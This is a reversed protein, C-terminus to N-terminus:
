PKSVYQNRKKLLKEIPKITTYAFYAEMLKNKFGLLKLGEKVKPTHMLNQFIRQTYGIQRLQSNIWALYKENIIERLIDVDLLEIEHNLLAYYNLSNQYTFTHKEEEFLVNKKRFYDRQWARDLRRDDPLNLMSLAINEDLFPSYGNYGYHEPISILSQLLMMKTRMAAIIRYKPDVLLDKQKDFAQEVLPRYDIATATQSDATMRHTHGLVKYDQIDKIPQVQVAGAWADGIIGSLMQMELAKEQQRIKDFFEMHYTGVAGVSCGFQGFWEEQYINFRGLDIRSWNLGLRHSLEQAYVVERSSSQVSSTGYTYARIREKNHLIVNLLRSDFGGSTPILIDSDFSSAWNNVDREIMEM